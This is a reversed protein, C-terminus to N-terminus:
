GCNVSSPSVKTSEYANGGGSRNQVNSFTYGVDAELNPTVKVTCLAQYTNGGTFAANVRQRGLTVALRCRLFEFVNGQWAVEGSYLLYDPPSYYGGRTEANQDFRWTFLNAAISFQGIKRELRSFSQEERNDDSFNGRRYLAFLSTNKDIQWYLNAGYRFASIQNGLTQANSKYASQEAVATLTVSPLLPMAVELNVNPSTPLRDFVDVGAATHLNFNGLKHDWSVQLPVNNVTEVKRQEFTNFGTKFRILDGSQLRFQATQEMFRNHQGFNDRDSRYDTVLRELGVVTPTGAGGSPSYPEPKPPPLQLGPNVNDAGAIMIIPESIAPESITPESITPELGHTITPLTPEDALTAVNTMRDIPRDSLASTSEQVWVPNPEIEAHAPSLTCLSLTAAIAWRYGLPQSHKQQFHRQQWYILHWDNTVGKLWRTMRKFPYICCGMRVRYYGNLKLIRCMKFPM